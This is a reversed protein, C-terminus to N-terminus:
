PLRGWVLISHGASQAILTTVENLPPITRHTSIRRWQLSSSINSTQPRDHNMLPSRYFTGLNITGAKTGGDSDFHHAQRIEGPTRGSLHITRNFGRINDIRAGKRALSVASYPCVGGLGNAVPYVSLGAYMQPLSPRRRERRM